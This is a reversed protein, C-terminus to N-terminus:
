PYVSVYNSPFIGVQQTHEIKGLYWGNLEGTIILQDGKKFSLEDVDQGVFDFLAECRADMERPQEPVAGAAGAGEGAAAVAAAEEVPVVESHSVVHQEVLIPAPPSIASAPLPTPAATAANHVLTTSAVAGEQQQKQVYTKPFIGTRGHLEGTWWDESDESAKLVIVDGAKFALDDPEDSGFDYLALATSTAYNVPPPVFPTTIPPPANFKAGAPSHVAAPQQFSPQPPPFNAAQVVPQQQQQLPPPQQQYQQQQQQMPQPPYAVGGPPQMGYQPPQQQQQQFPPQPPQQQMMGGGPAVVVPPGAPAAMKARNNNDIIASNIVHYEIHPRPKTHTTTANIYEQIDRRNDITAVSRVLAQGVAVDAAGLTEHQQAFRQLHAHLAALRDQETREFQQMIEIIQADYNVQADKLVQVGRQYDDHKQKLVTLQRSVQSELKQQQQPPLQRGNDRQQIAQEAQKVSDGYADRAKDHKVQKTKCDDVLKNYRQQLSTKTTKMERVTKDVAMSLEVCATALQNHQAAVVGAQEKVTTWVPVATSSDLLEPTGHAEKGIRDAYQKETAARQTLYAHVAKLDRRGMTVRKFVADFHDHLYESFTRGSSTTTVPVIAASSSPGLSSHSTVVVPPPPPYSSAASIGNQHTPSHGSQSSFASSPSAPPMVVSLPPPIVEM